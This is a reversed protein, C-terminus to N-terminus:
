MMTIRRLINITYSQQLVVWASTKLFIKEGAHQLIFSYLLTTVTWFHGLMDTPYMTFVIVILSNFVSCFGISVFVDYKQFATTTVWESLTTLKLTHNQNLNSICTVYLVMDYGNDGAVLTVVWHSFCSIMKYWYGHESMVVKLRPNFFSYSSFVFGLVRAGIILGQLKEFAHLMMDLDWSGSVSLFDTLQGPCVKVLTWVSCPPPLMCMCSATMGM